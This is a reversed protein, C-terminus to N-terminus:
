DPSAESHSLLKILPAPNGAASVDRPIGSTVLPGAGIFVNGGVRVTVAASRVPIMRMLM